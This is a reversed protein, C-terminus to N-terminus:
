FHNKGFLRHPDVTGQRSFCVALKAPSSNWQDQSFPNWSKKHLWMTRKESSWKALFSAARAFTIILKSQLLETAPMPVVHPHVAMAIQCLLMNVKDSDWRKLQSNPDWTNMKFPWFVYINIWFKKNLVM